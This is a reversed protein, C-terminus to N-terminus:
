RGRPLFRAPEELPRRNATLVIGSASGPSYHAHDGALDARSLNACDESLAPLAAFVMGAVIKLLMWRNKM